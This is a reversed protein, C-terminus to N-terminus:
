RAWGRVQDHVASSYGSKQLVDTLKGELPSRASFLLAQLEGHHIADHIRPIAHHFTNRLVRAEFLSGGITIADPGPPGGLLAGQSRRQWAHGLGRMRIEKLAGRAVPELEFDSVFSARGAMLALLPTETLVLQGPESQSSLFSARRQLNAVSQRGGLGHPFWPPKRPSVGRIGVAFCLLIGAILVPRPRRLASNLLYAAGVSAPLALDIANHDWFAPSALVYYGLWAGLLVAAFRLGRQGRALAIVLGVIGLALVPDVHAGLTRLRDLMTSAEGKFFFFLFVQTLFEGDYRATFLLTVALFFAALSGGAVLAARVNRRLVLEVVLAAAGVGATLKFLLAAALLAGGLSARADDCRRPGSFLLVAAGALAFNTWVERQFLHWALLPAAVVYLAGALFACRRGTLPTLLRLLLLATGLVAAGTLLSAVMLRADGLDAALLPAYLAEVFPFAVHVFDEYPTQGIGLLFANQLYFGDIVTIRGFPALAIRVLLTFAVLV